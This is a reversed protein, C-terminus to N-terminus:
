SSPLSSTFSTRVHFFTSSPVSSSFRITCTTSSVTSLSLSFRSMVKLSTFSVSMISSGLSASRLFSIPMSTRLAFILRRVVFTFLRRRVRASSLFRSFGRFWGTSLVRVYPFTSFRDHAVRRASRSSRFRQARFDGCTSLPTDRSSMQSASTCILSPYTGVSGSASRTNVKSISFQGKRFSASFVSFPASSSPSSPCSSIIASFPRAPYEWAASSFSM